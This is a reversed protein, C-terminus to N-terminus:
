LVSFYNKLKNLWKVILSYETQSHTGRQVLLVGQVRQGYQGGGAVISATSCQMTNM